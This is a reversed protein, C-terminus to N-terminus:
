GLVQDVRKGDNKKVPSSTKQEYVRKVHIIMDTGNQYREEVLGAPLPPDQEKEEKEETVFNSDNTVGRPNALFRYYREWDEDTTIGKSAEELNTSWDQYDPREKFLELTRARAADFATM